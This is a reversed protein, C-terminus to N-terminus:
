VHLQYVIPSPRLPVQASPSQPRGEADWDWQTGTGHHEQGLTLTVRAVSVRCSQSVIHSTCKPVSTAGWGGVWGGGGHGLGM